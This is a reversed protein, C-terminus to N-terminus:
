AGGGFLELVKRYQWLGEICLGKHPLLSGNYYYDFSICFSFAYLFSCLSKM